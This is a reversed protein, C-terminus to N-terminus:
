ITNITRRMQLSANAAEKLRMVLERTRITPGPSLQVDHLTVNLEPGYVKYSLHVLDRWKRGSYLLSAVIDAIHGGDDQATSMM